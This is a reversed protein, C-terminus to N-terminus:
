SLPGIVVRQSTAYTYASAPQPYTGPPLGTTYIQYLANADAFASFLSGTSATDMSIPAAQLDSQAYVSLWQYFQECGILADRLAALKNQANSVIYAETIGAPFGIAVCVERVNFISSSGSFDDPTM